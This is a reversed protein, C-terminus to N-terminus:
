KVEYLNKVLIHDTQADDGMYFIHEGQRIFGHKRYFNQAPQNHEWVGLWTAQKKKEKAQQLAWEMLQTGIGKAKFLPRVYIREVELFTDPMEESQTTGTNLKLYGAVQDEYIAWFFDSEPHTLEHRLRNLEYAQSLYAEMHKKTNYPGFTDTYTEISVAQLLEVESPEISKIVLKGM